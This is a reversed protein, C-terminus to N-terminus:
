NDIQSLITELSYDDQNKMRLRIQWEEIDASFSLSKLEKGVTQVSNRIGGSMEEDIFEKLDGSYSEQDLNLFFCIPDETLVESYEAKTVNDVILGGSLIEELNERSNSVILDNGAVLMMIEPGGPTKYFDGSKELEEESVAKDLFKQFIAPKALRAAGTFGPIKADSDLSFDDDGISIRSDKMGNLSFAVEGSFASKMDETTINLERSLKEVMQDFDDNVFELLDFIKAPDMNTNAVLFLDKSPLYTLLEKIAKEDLFNYKEITQEMDPNFRLNTTLIMEGKGFELFIHGYNNKLSGFLDLADGFDGLGPLTQLNTSTFWANIDKQKGLFHNFDKDTLLQNEKELRIIKEAIEASKQSWGNRPAISIMIEDNYLLFVTGHSLTEYGEMKDRIFEFEGEKEMASLTTELDSKDKVPMVMCIVPDNDSLLFGYSYTDLDIGSNEPNEAIEKLVENDNGEFSLFDMELLNGKEILNGPHITVVATATEPIVEFIETEPGGCSFFFFLSLFLSAISLTKPKPNMMTPNIKFITHYGRAAPVKIGSHFGTSSAPGNTNESFRPKM